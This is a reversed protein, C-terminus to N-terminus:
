QLGVTSMSPMNLQTDDATHRDTRRAMRTKAQM